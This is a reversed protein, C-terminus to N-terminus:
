SIIKETLRFLAYSIAVHSSNLRTSKRDRKGRRPSLFWSAVFIIGGVRLTLLSLELWRHRSGGPQFLARFSQVHLNIGELCVLPFFLYGQRKYWWRMFANASEAKEPTFAIVDM